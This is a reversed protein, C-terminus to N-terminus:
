GIINKKHLFKYTIDTWGNETKMYMQQNTTSSNLPGKSKDWHGIKYYDIEDALDDDWKDDGSYVAINLKPYLVRIYRILSILEGHHGDGGELCIGTILNAYLPIVTEIFQKLDTGIDTQLQPSHCGVCRHPCNTITVTLMTEDPVEAFTVSYTDYKIM